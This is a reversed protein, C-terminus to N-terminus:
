FCFFLVFEHLFAESIRSRNIAPPGKPPCHHRLRSITLLGSHLPDAGRHYQVQQPFQAAKPVRPRVGAPKVVAGPTGM